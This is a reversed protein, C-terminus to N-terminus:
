SAPKKQLQNFGNHTRSWYKCFSISFIFSMEYYSISFFITYLIVTSYASYGVDRGFISEVLNQNTQLLSAWYIACPM